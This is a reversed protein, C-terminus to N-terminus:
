IVSVIPIHSGSAELRVIVEEQSDQHAVFTCSEFIHSIINTSVPKADPFFEALLYNDPVPNRKEKDSMATSHNRHHLIRLTPCPLIPWAQGM